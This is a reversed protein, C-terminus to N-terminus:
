PKQSKTQSGRGLRRRVWKDVEVVWVVSATVPLIVAWHGPALHGTRFIAQLTPNYVLILHALFAAGVSALLFPNGLLPIRFISERESRSNMVHFMQFLVATALAATRVTELPAGANLQWRFVGVTGAMLVLGVLTLRDILMRTIVPENPDRPPRRITGPEGPEFALAVDQLGNAVLNLWLIQAPLFPLPLRAGLTYLIALVVGVGTPLLFFIAKRTNDFVVRGERVTAFISAFNDDTIVMDSAEGAADTGTRGMAVGIHAAKLAPADNVGDGTVAVVYGLKLLGQVIRLKDLPSVRAFVNATKLRRNLASEDMAEMDAGTVVNGGTTELGIQRAIAGATVEHDGTVMMVRIGAERARRVADLAEPRAPDEM